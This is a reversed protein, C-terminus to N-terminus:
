YQTGLVNQRAISELGASPKRHHIARWLELPSRTEQGAPRSVPVHFESLECWCDNLFEDMINKSHFLTIPSPAPLAIECMNPSDFFIYGQWGWKMHERETWKHLDRTLVVGYVGGHKCISVRRKYRFHMTRAVLGMVVLSGFLYGVVFVLILKLSDDM